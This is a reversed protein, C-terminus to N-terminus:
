PNAPPTADASSFAPRYPLATKKNNAFVKATEGANLTLGVPITADRIVVPKLETMTGDEAYVAVLALAAPDRGTRTMTIADLTGGDVPAACPEGAADKFSMGTVSVAFDDTAPRTDCIVEGDIELYINSFTIDANRTAFMGVYLNETDVNFLSFDFGGSQPTQGDITCTYGDTNSVISLELTDGTKVAPTTLTTKNGVTGDKRYYCNTTDANQTLCGAVVYNSSINKGKKDIHMDDRAMLGFASQSDATGLSNITATATLKFLKGKPIRYYYMVLGDQANAIKGTGNPSIHIRDDQAVLVPTGLSIDGFGTPRFQDREGTKQNDFIFPDTFNKSAADDAPPAYTPATWGPTAAATLDAATPAGATLSFAAKVEATFLPDTSETVAKALWYAVWKAGYKNLHTNDVSTTQDSTWAHLKVNEGAGLATYQTKTIETLDVVPVNKDQGLKIVAEPYSGGNAIHLNGNSFDVGNSARRVIPTCLIATAGKDAALKVYNDYLSKAFSGETQWDGTPTTYRAADDAKEDNHGFGIILIDGAQIGATLTAYNAEALFSKSSRGSLALNQVKYDATVYDSLKTGYGCRKYYYTADETEAYDCVTSDGVVWITHAEGAAGAPVVLLSALMWVSLLVSLARRVTRKM